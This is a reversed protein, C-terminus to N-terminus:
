ERSQRNGARGTSLSEIGSLGTQLESAEEGPAFGERQGSAADPTLLDDTRGGQHSPEMIPRERMSAIPGPGGLTYSM